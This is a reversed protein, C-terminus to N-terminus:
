VCEHLAHNLSAQGVGPERLLFHYAGTAASFRCQVTPQRRCSRQTGRLTAYVPVPQSSSSMLKSLWNMRAHAPVFNEVRLILALWHPIAVQLGSTKPRQVNSCPPSTFYTQM